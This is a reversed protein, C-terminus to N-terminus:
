KEKGRQKAREKAVCDAHAYYGTIGLARLAAGLPTGGPRHCIVCHRGKLQPEAKPRKM